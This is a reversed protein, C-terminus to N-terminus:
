DCQFLRLHFSWLSSPSPPSGSTTNCFIFHHNDKQQVYTTQQRYKRICPPPVSQPSHRPVRPTIRSRAHTDRAIVRAAYIPRTVVKVGCVATGTYMYPYSKVSISGQLAHHTHKLVRRSDRIRYIHRGPQIHAGSLLDRNWLARLM